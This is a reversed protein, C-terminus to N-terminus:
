PLVSFFGDLLHRLDPAEPRHAVYRSLPTSGTLTHGLQLRAADLGAEYAILSAVTRRLTHPTTGGFDPHGKIAKRLSTRINAAWLWTGNGSPLMPDDPDTFRSSEMRARLLSAAADPLILTRVDDTKTSEQRHHEEVFGKRPEVLTGSITLTPADGDLDVLRRPVALIESVRAGTALALLCFNYLDRKPGRRGPKRLHDPHVIRLLERAQDVDLAEVERPERAPRSVLPMPNIPIAGDRAALNLMQNLVGRAGETSLGNDELEDLYAELRPATVEHLRLDGMAPIIIRTIQDHYNWRTQAKLPRRQRTSGSRRKHEEWYPALDGITWHPQAGAQPAEVLNDIKRQLNRLAASKSAGTATVQRRKGSHTRVNAAARHRGSPLRRTWPQGQEGLALHPRGPSM